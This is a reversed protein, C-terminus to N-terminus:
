MADEDILRASQEKTTSRVVVVSNSIRHIFSCDDREEQLEPRVSWFQNIRDNTAITPGKFCSILMRKNAQVRLSVFSSMVM